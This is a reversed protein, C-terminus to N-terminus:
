RARLTLRRTESRRETGARTIARVTFRSGSRQAALKRGARNLRLRVTKAAGGALELGRSAFVKGSREVGVTGQSTAPGPECRLSLAFRGGRSVRVRGGRIAIGPPPAASSAAPARSPRPPDPPRYPNNTGGPCMYFADPGTALTMQMLLEEGTGRVVDPRLVAGNNTQNDGTFQSTASGPVAGFIQLPTGDPYPGTRDPIGDWGGITNFAVVDGQAVCLNEPRYATITEPTGTMANPVDFAQSTVKVRFTGDPQPELTQFHFVTEGGGGIAGPPRDSKAYGKLRIEVIQGGAPASVSRGDAFAQHWYATDAQRAETRDAPARLDSGFVQLDAQVAAPAALLAGGSLITARLLRPM